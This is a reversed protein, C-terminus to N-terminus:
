PFNSSFLSVATNLEVPDHIYQTEMAAGFDRFRFIYLETIDWSCIEMPPIPSRSKIDVTEQLAVLVIKPCIITQAKRWYQFVPQSAAPYSLNRFISRLNLGTVLSQAPGFCYLFLILIMAFAMITRPNTPKRRILLSEVVWMQFPIHLAIVGPRDLNM